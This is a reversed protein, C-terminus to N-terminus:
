RPSAKQLISLNRLKEADETLLDLDFEMTLQRRSVDVEDEVADLVENELNLQEPDEEPDYHIPLDKNQEHYDDDKPDAAEKFTSLIKQVVLNVVHALCRIQSNDPVFHINFKDRLIRALAVMLCDNASVNDMVVALLYPILVDSIKELVGLESLRTALGIAAFERKHEKDEIPHFDLVREVLEWAETIWSGITGAFTFMMSRTTWTDTSVAMQSKVMELDANLRGLMDIFIRALTNRVLTDSSPCVQMQPISVSAQNRVDRGDHVSLFEEMLKASAATVGCVPGPEPAGPIPMDRGHDDRNLHTALNGLNPQKPEDEFSKARDVTRPFTVTKPCPKCRFEWRRSGNHTVPIPPHYHERTNTKPGRKVGQTPQDDDSSVDIVEVAPAAASANSKTNKKAAKRPKVPKVPVRTKKPPHYDRDEESENGPAAANKGKAKAAAEAKKRSTFSAAFFISSTRDAAKESLKKKPQQTQSALAPNGCLYTLEAVVRELKLKALDLPIAATQWHIGELYKVVLDMGMPGRRMYKLRGNNDRTDEGFLIDFRRNFTGSVTDDIGHVQSTVHFIKKDDETELSGEPVSDPLLGALRRMQKILDLVPKTALVKQQDHSLGETNNKDTVRASPIHNRRPKSPAPLTSSM